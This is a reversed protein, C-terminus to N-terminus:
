RPDYRETFPHDMKKGKGTKLHVNGIKINLCLRCSAKVHWTVDLGNRAGMIFVTVRSSLRLNSIQGGNNQIKIINNNIIM